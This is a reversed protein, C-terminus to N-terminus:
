YSRVQEWGLTGCIIAELGAYKPRWGLERRALTPYGGRDRDSRGCSEGDQPRRTDHQRLRSYGTGYYMMGNEPFYYHM